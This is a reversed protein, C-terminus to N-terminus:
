LVLRKQFVRAPCLHLSTPQLSPERGEKQSGSQPTNCRVWDKIFGKELSKLAEEEDNFVLGRGDFKRMSEPVASVKVLAGEPALTGRLIRIGAEKAVPNDYTGVVKTTRTRFQGLNEKVRNGSVTISNLYLKERLGSMM